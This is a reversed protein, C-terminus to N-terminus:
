NISEFLNFTIEKVEDPSDILTHPNAAAIDAMSLYADKFERIFWKNEDETLTSCLAQFNFRGRFLYSTIPDEWRPRGRYGCSRITKIVLAAQQDAVSEIKPVLPKLLEILESIKPFWKSAKVHKTSADAIQDPTYGELAQHYMELVDAGPIEVQYYRALRLLITDIERKRQLRKSKDSV